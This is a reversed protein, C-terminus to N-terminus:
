ILVQLKTLVKYLFCLKLDIFKLSHFTVMEEQNAANWNIAACFTYFSCYM